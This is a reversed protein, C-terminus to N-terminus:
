IEIRGSLNEIVWPDIELEIEQKIIDRITKTGGTNVIDEILELISQSKYYLLSSQIDRSMLVSDLIIKDTGKLESRQDIFYALKGTYTVNFLNFIDIYINPITISDPSTLFHITSERNYCRLLYNGGLFVDKFKKNEVSIKSDNLYLFERFSYELTNEM